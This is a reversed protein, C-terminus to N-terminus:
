KSIQALQVCMNKLVTLLQKGSPRAAHITRWISAEILIFTVKFM